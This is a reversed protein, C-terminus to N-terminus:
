KELGLKRPEIRIRAMITSSSFYANFASFSSRIFTTVKIIDGYQKDSWCIQQFPRITVRKFKERGGRKAGYLALIYREGAEKVQEHSANPNNFVNITDQLDVKKGLLISQVKGKGYFASTTDCGSIAHLFLISERCNEVVNGELLSRTSYLRKNVSGQGEKLMFINKHLPTLGLLLVLLDIDQGVVVVNENREAEEIATNVILMDADDNATLSSIGENNLRKSLQLIFREKNLLNSLFSAKTETIRSQENFEIEPCKRNLM